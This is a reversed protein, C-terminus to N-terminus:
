ETPGFIMQAAAPLYTRWHELIFRILCGTGDAYLQVSTTTFIADGAHPNDFPVWETMWVSVARTGAPMGEIRWLNKGSAADRPTRLFLTHLQPLATASTLPRELALHPALVYTGLDREVPDDTPDQRRDIAPPTAAYATISLAAAAPAAALARLFNRRSPLVLQASQHERTIVNSCKM